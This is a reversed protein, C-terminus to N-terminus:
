FSCFMGGGSFKTGTWYRVIDRDSYYGVFGLETGASNRYINTADNLNSGDLYYLGQLQSTCADNQNFARGLQVETLNSSPPPPAVGQQIISISKSISGDTSKLIFASTRSNSSTNETISASLVGDHIGTNGFPFSIAFPNNTGQWTTNSLININVTQAASTINFTTSNPTVYIPGEKCYTTDNVPAVYNPDTNTNVRNIGTLEGTTINRERIRAFSKVGTNNITTDESVCQSTTLADIVSNDVIGDPRNYATSGTTTAYYNHIEQIENYYLNAPNTADGVAIPVIQVNLGAARDALSKSFTMDAPSYIDDNGSPPADTILFIVKTTNTRFANLEGNLVAEVGLDTPEAIDRGGSRTINDLKYQVDLKNNIAFKSEIKYLSPVIDTVAILGLRYNTSYKSVISDVIKGLSAKLNNITNDMSGTVDVVFAVDITNNCPVGVEETNCYPQYGEWAYQTIPCAAEDQIPAIYDPDGSVNDKVVGTSALTDVNYQELNDYMSQGTNEGVSKICYKDIGRWAYTPEEPPPPPPPPPNNVQNWWNDKIASIM